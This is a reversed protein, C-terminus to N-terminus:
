FYFINFILLIYNIYLLLLLPLLYKITPKLEIPIIMMTLINILPIMSTLYSMLMDFM